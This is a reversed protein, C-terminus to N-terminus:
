RKELQDKLVALRDMIKAQPAKALVLGSFEKDQLAFGLRELFHLHMRISPSLVVFLVSVPKRSAEGFLVPNKLYCLAVMPKAVHLLIPHRAHPIAIGNGLETSGERERSLIMKCVLERDEEAPIKLRDVINKFIAPKDTGEINEYIGGEELAEKLSPLDVGNPILVPVGNEHAWDILKMRNFHYRGNFRTAPLDRKDIWDFLTDEPIQLFESAEKVTWQM